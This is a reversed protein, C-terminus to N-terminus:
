ANYLEEYKDVIVGGQRLLDLGSMDRYTNKYVVRTIGSSVLMSACPRCPPHTIYVSSMYVSVGEKAAKLLCALEAHIVEPKTTLIWSTTKDDWEKSECENGLLRPLGNVGPIIIGTHTVMCAGVQLRRAKSLSAHLNAVGMYVRDLENQTAM